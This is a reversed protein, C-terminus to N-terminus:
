WRALLRHCCCDCPRKLHGAKVPNAGWTVAGGSDRHRSCLEIAVDERATTLAQRLWFPVLVSFQVM